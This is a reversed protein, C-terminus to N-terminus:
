VDMEVHQCEIAYIGLALPPVDTEVHRRRRGIGFHGAQGTAKVVTDAPEEFAAAQPRLGIRIFDIGEQVVLRQQGFEVACRDRAADGGTPTRAMAEGLDSALNVGLIQGGGGARATSGNGAEANMGVNRDGSMVTHTQLPKATIGAARGQRGMPERHEGVAPQEIAEFAAPAVAGAVDNEFGRVQNRLERRKHRGRAEVQNPIV